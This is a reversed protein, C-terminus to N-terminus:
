EEVWFSPAKSVGGAKVCDACEPTTSRYHPEKYINSEIIYLFTYKGQSNLWQSFDYFSKNSLYEKDYLPCPSVKTTFSFRDLDKHNIYIRKDSYGAVQFFGLVPEENDHINHINSVISYPQKGFINGNDYNSDKIRSWFTHEEKSITYQTVLVTYRLEFRDTDYYSKFFLKKGDVNGLNTTHHININNVDNSRWCKENVVPWVHYTYNDPAVYSRVPYPVKFSWDEKFNWKLYCDARSATNVYFALGESEQGSESDVDKEKQYYVDYIDLPENLLCVDSQYIKGSSTTIHLQYSRGTETSFTNEDTYYCGPEKETLTNENHLDDTISVVCLTEPKFGQNTNDSSRGIKITFSKCQNTILGDVVLLDAYDGITTDAPDLCANTFLLLLSIVLYTLIKM